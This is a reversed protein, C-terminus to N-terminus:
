SSFFYGKWSVTGAPMVLVSPLAGIAAYDFHEPLFTCHRYCAACPLPKWIACSGGGVLRTSLCKSRNVSELMSLGDVPWTIGKLSVQWKGAVMSTDM